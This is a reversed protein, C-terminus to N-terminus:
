QHCLCIWSIHTTDSMIKELFNYHNRFSVQAFHITIIVHVNRIRNVSTKQQLDTFKLLLFCLTICTIFYKRTFSLNPYLIFELTFYRCFCMLCILDPIVDVRPPALHGQPPPDVKASENLLVRVDRECQFITTSVLIGVYLFSVLFGCSM